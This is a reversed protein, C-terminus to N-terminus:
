MQTVNEPSFNAIASVDFFLLLVKSLEYKDKNLLPM